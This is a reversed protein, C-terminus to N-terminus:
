SLGVCQAADTLRYFSVHLAPYADRVLYMSLRHRDIRASRLGLFIFHRVILVFVTNTPPCLSTFHRNDDDGGGWGVGQGVPLSMPRFLMTLIPLTWVTGAVAVNLSPSSLGEM